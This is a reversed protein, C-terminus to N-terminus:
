PLNNRLRREKSDNGLNCWVIVPYRYVLRNSIFYIFGACANQIRQQQWNNIHYHHNCKYLKGRRQV